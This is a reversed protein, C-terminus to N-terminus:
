KESFACTGRLVWDWGDVRVCMINGTAQVSVNMLTSNYMGISLQTDQLAKPIVVCKMCPSYPSFLIINPSTFIIQFKVSERPTIYIDLLIMRLGVLIYLMDLM